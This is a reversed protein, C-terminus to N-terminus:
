SLNETRQSQQFEDRTMSYCVEDLVAGDFRKTAHRLVGEHRFGLKEIVRRSQANFSYHYVSVLDLKLEEFAFRLIEICAEPMLGQGWYEEALVYGLMRVNKVDRKADRHLGASGIIKGSDKLCIAWCDGEKIFMQLIQESEEKSEHPKWGAMPGVKSSKGYFYLGEADDGSWDRLVLRETELTKM